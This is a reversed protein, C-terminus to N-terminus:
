RVNYQDLKVSFSLSSVARSTGGLISPQPLKMIIDYRQVIATDDNEPFVFTENIQKRMFKVCVEDSELKEIRGVYHVETKKTSFEVLVFDNIELVYPSYNLDVELFEEEENM